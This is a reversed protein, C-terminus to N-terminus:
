MPEAREYVLIGTERLAGRVKPTSGDPDFWELDVTFSIHEQLESQWKESNAMWVALTEESDAVPEVEVAIDLDSDTRPNGKARSGFVWVRRIRPTAEAWAVIADRVDDGFGSM